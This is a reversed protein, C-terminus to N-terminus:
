SVGGGLSVEHQGGNVVGHIFSAPPQVSFSSPPHPYDQGDDCKEEYAGSRRLRSRPLAEAIDKTQKLQPEETLNLILEDQDAARPVPVGVDCLVALEHAKKLLDKCRKSFTVQRSVRNEVRKLEVMEEDTGEGAAAAGDHARRPCACVTSLM